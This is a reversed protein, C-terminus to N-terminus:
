PIFSTCRCMFTCTCSACTCTYLFWLSFQFINIIECSVSVRKALHHLAEQTTVPKADPPLVGESAGPIVMSARIRMRAGKSLAVRRATSYVEKTSTVMRQRQRLTIEGINMDNDKELDEYLDEEM